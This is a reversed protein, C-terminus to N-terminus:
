SSQGPLRIPSKLRVGVYKTTNSKRRTIGARVLFKGFSMNMIYPANNTASWQQYRAYVETATVEAVQDFVMCEDIFDYVYKMLGEAQRSEKEPADDKPMPLGLDRWLAAAAAKGHALRAERVMALQERAIEWDIQPKLEYKGTKWIAPLVEEFIWREFRVAAPLKSRAVLRCLDPISIFLAHPHLGSLPDGDQSGLLLSVSGKGAQSYLAPTEGEKGTLSGSHLPQTQCGRGTRECLEEYTVANKCHDKVAGRENVYGLCAAVDRALWWTDKDIVVARVAKEEFMFFDLNSM